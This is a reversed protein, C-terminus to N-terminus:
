VVPQLDTDFFGIASPPSWLWSNGLSDALVPRGHKVVTAASNKMPTIPSLLAFMKVRGKKFNEGCMRCYNHGAKEYKECDKCGSM